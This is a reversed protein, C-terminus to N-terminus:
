LLNIHVFKDKPWVCKVIFNLPKIERGWERIM